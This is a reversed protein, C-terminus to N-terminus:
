SFFILIPVESIIVVRFSHTKSGPLSPTGGLGLGIEEVRMKRMATIHLDQGLM